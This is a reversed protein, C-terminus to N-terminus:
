LPSAPLGVQVLGNSRFAAEIAQYEGRNYGQFVIRRLGTDPRVRVYDVAANIMTRATHGIEAGAVGTGLLPFLVSGRPLYPALEEACRLGNAVCWDLNRVQRYGAGPEGQVSAVHIIHRVQHSGALAGPGTVVATGPAVPRHPGTNAELENAILDRLVHGYRDRVSGWYRIIGSISFENHRAMQMDTNESNVWIDATRVNRITGPVIGFECSPRGGPFRFEGSGAPLEDVSRFSPAVRRLESFLQGLDGEISYHRLRLSQCRALATIGAPLEHEAPLAAGELLVPIVRVGSSFAERLERQVWDDDSDGLYDLWNPGILALLVQCRRLSAFIERVFDEGAAISRSAFFVQEGGFEEAIAYHLLTAYGPQERVRYNVFVVPM